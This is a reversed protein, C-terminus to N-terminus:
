TVLYEASAKKFETHAGVLATVDHNALNEAGCRIVNRGIAPTGIFMRGTTYLIKLVDDRKSYYNNLPGYVASAAEDWDAAKGTGVAGGLLHAAKVRQVPGGALGRLSYYTVRAGLSHGLLVYKKQGPTRSIIDALVAGTMAAKTMAVHWPNEALKFLLLARELPNLNQGALKTAEKALQALVQMMAAQGSIDGATKGLDHLNKSEWEVLYWPNRLYHKGLTNLWEREQNKEQQTLFGNILLVSPGAGDKLKTIKFGQIDGVYANAIVGSLAGGTAAGAATIVAIGGAMGYGGAALAGLGLTALGKSVAAAGSLGYVTSGIAGGVVPAAVFAAPGVVLGGGVAAGAIKTMKGLNVVERKFLTLYDEIVDIKQTLRGFGAIKGAHASCYLDDVKGEGRAM